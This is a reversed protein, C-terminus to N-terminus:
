DARSAQQVATRVLSPAVFALNAVLMILGFTIMGMTCAIGLHIPIALALVLPRSWRPWILAVYSLEWALTLHTLINIIWPWNGLWTMDISQYEYNAIALWLARGEWWSIGQLKGLAAFLYVVCLHLQILRTAVNNRISPRGSAVKLWGTGAASDSRRADMSYAAGSDGIMLYMALLTNIQDLGFLAGPVRNLYSVTLLFTLVSTVRTKYGVTFCAFTALALAHIGWMAWPNQVWRFHSWAFANGHFMEVFRLSIRGQDGFFGTLDLSWVLHTYFIMLGTCIRILGLTEPRRPTFWFRDWGEVTACRLETLYDRVLQRIM